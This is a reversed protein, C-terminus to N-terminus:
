CCRWKQRISTDAVVWKILVEPPGFFLTLKKVRGESSKFLTLAGELTVKKRHLVKQKFRRLFDVPVKKGVKRSLRYYFQKVKKSSSKLFLFVFFFEPCFSFFYFFKGCVLSSVNSGGRM